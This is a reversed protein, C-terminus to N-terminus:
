TRTKRVPHADPEIRAACKLCPDCQAGHALGLHDEKQAFCSIPSLRLGQDRLIPRDIEIGHHRRDRLLPIPDRLRDLHFRRITGEVNQDIAPQRVLGQGTPKPRSRSKILGAPSVTKAVLQLVNHREAHRTRIQCAGMQQPCCAPLKDFAVNLM